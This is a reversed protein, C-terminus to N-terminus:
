CDSSDPALKAVRARAKAQTEAMLESQSPIGFAAFSQFREVIVEPDDETPMDRQGDLVIMGAWRGNPTPRIHGIAADRGRLYVSWGGDERDREIHLQHKM